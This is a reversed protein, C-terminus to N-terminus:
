RNRPRAGPWGVPFPSLRCQHDDRGQCAPSWDHLPVQAKNYSLKEMVSDVLMGDDQALLELLANYDYVVAEHSEQNEPVNLQRAEKTWALTTRLKEALKDAKYEHTMGKGRTSPHICPVHEVGFHRCARQADGGLAIVTRGEVEHRTIKGFSEYLHPAPYSYSSKPPLLHFAQTVYIDKRTLKAHELALDLVINFRKTPLYGNRKLTDRHVDVSPWDLWDKCILVPGTKSHSNKQIPTIWEGDFGVDALTKYGPIAFERRRAIIEKRKM